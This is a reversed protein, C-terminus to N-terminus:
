FSLGVSFHLRVDHAQQGYAVDLRFPGLPTRVRVGAGYGFAFRFDPMSDSADGADVFAALGWAEGLQAAIRTAMLRNGPSEAKDDRWYHIHDAYITGKEKAFIDGLDYIALGTGERPRAKGDCAPSPFRSGTTGHQNRLDRWSPRLCM